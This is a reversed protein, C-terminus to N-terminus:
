RQKADAPEGWHKEAKVVSKLPTLRQGDFVFYHSGMPPEERIMGNMVLLRSDLHYEFHGSETGADEPLGAVVPLMVVRGSRADIIAGLECDTGCGWSAVIFHSAFNPKERAGNRIMTRFRRVEQTALVPAANRGTYPAGAPYDGFRPAEPAAAAGGAM